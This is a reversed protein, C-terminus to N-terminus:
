KKLLAEIMNHVAGKGEPTLKDLRDIIEGNKIFEEGVELFVNDMFRAAKRYETAGVLYEVSVNFFEAIKILWEASIERESNEYHWLTTQPIQIRRCLEAQNMGMEERLERIKDGIRLM